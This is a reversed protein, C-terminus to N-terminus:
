GVRKKVQKTFRNVVDDMAFAPKGILYSHITNKFNRYWHKPIGKKGVIAGVISGATAATCDNDLGMAVTEGIVKTIDTGGIGIGFITLCANNLTHVRHMGKFKQDVAERADQYNRIKPTTRFAWRIAEALACKKPIETLGIKLAEMPDKVSFAAAIAAAFFMEGYIGQRRHSLYADHYAMRAAEEPWGAAMYGWPDARIDAGIWECYPNDKEGVKEISIGSKLNKLAVEEATCAHPMYKGWAKGVDLTSFDPGYDEMILLGVLTYAIDDDVPVGKMKEKTFSERLSLEYRKEYPFPVRSWYDIPPFKDGNEKALNQMREISWSEVPAGLICGAFRALLAGELKERYEAEDWKKLLCRPGQPRLKQIASLENPNQAAFSSDDSISNLKRIVARLDTEAKKMLPIIGKARNEYKLDGYFLIEQALKEYCPFNLYRISSYDKMLWYCWM